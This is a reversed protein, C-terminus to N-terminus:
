VHARGIEKIRQGTGVYLRETLYYGRSGTGIVGVTVQDSAALAPLVAPAAVTATKVFGRRSIPKESM